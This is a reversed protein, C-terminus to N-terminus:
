WPLTLWVPLPDARWVIAGDRAVLVLRHGDGSNDYVKASDVIRIAEVCNAISRAFRRRVDADPIFHGGVAVRMRVRAVNRDASDVGVFVLHVHFGRAKATQILERHKRSALTMEIAFSLKRDLYEDICKLVARGADISAAAPNFPNLRRAIADADLL